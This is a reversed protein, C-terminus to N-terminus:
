GIVAAAAVDGDEEYITKALANVHNPEVEIGVEEFGKRLEEAVTEETAGDQYASVHNVVTQIAELEDKDYENM